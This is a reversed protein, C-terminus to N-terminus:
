SHSRSLHGGRDRGYVERKRYRVVAPNMMQDLLGTKECGLERLGYLLQSIVLAIHVDVHRTRVTKAARM